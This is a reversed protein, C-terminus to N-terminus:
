FSTRIDIGITRPRNTVIRPRGPTEVGLSRSDALNAHTNTVNKAFVAFEWDNPFLFGLKLDLLEYSERIRPNDPDNNASLSDGVYKFDGRLYGRVDASLEFQYDLAGSISWEPVQLVRDGPQQPSTPASETIKADVYGIGVSATLGDFLSADLEVEFGKSEAAGANGTFAFGCALRQLQQINSWDIYFGAANLTMRRDFLSTKLGGEYSWLDDSKYTEVDAPGLGLAAIEAGCGFGEPISTNVGGPRFGKAATAYVLVDEGPEFEIGFKPNIGDEKISGAIESPGGVAFGDVANFFKVKTQFLRAGAFLTLNDSLDFSLESFFAIESTDETLDSAFDLDTGFDLAGGTADLVADSIGVIPAAPFVEGNSVDSYFIGSTVQFPGSFDSVFRTEHVFREASLKQRVIAPVAPDVGFVGVFFGTFDETEDTSRDFYSTSSVISGTELDLNGEVSLLVWEDEGGEKLNFERVQDFNGPEIDAYPFGNLITRQFMVKSTVDLTDTFAAKLALQGGFVDLDDVNKDRLVGGGSATNLVVRDFVGEESIYYGLARLAYKGEVIPVNVAADFSNNFGGKDTYSGSMHLKVSRENLDPQKTIVRVTGGMSRAGFLTGQPGRLVEIREVDIVRPDISEGVPTEDIYFSTTQLGEIGRISITRSALAGDNAAGFALNPVSTGYDFFSVAGSRELEFGGIATVSLPVDQLSQERKQATVVIAEIIQEQGTEASALDPGGMGLLVIASTTSLLKKLFIMM